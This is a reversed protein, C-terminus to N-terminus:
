WQELLGTFTRSDGGLGPLTPWGRGRTSVLANQPPWRQTAFLPPGFFWSFVACWAGPEVRQGTGSEVRSEFCLLSEGRGYLGEDKFFGSCDDFGNMDGM